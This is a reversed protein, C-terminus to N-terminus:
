RPAPAAALVVIGHQHAHQLGPHAARVLLQVRADDPLGRRATVKQDDPVLVQPPHGGHPLVDAIGAHAVEDHGRHSPGARPHAVGATDALRVQAVAAVVDLAADLAHMAIHRLIVDLRGLVQDPDRRLQPLHGDEGLREADHLLRDRLSNLICSRMIQRGSRARTAPVPGMPISAVKIRRSMPM